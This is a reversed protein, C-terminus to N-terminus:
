GERSVSPSPKEDQDLGGFAAGMDIRTRVGLHLPGPAGLADDAEM